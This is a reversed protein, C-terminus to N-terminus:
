GGSIVPILVLRDGERIEEDETLITGERAVVYESSAYGLTRLLDAVTRGAVTVEREEGGLVRVRVKM